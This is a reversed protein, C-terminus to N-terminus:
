TAERHSLMMQALPKVEVLFANCEHIADILEPPAPMPPNIPAADVIQGARVRLFKVSDANQDEAWRAMSAVFENLAKEYDFLADRGEITYGRVDSPVSDIRDSFDATALSKRREALHTGNLLLQTIVQSTFHEAFTVHSARRATSGVLVIGPLPVVNNDSM